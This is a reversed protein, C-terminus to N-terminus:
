LTQVRGSRSRQRVTEEQKADVTFGKTSIPPTEKGTAEEDVVKVLEYGGHPEEVKKACGECYKTDPTRHQMGLTVMMTFAKWLVQLFVLDAVIIAILLSGTSKLQPVQCFYQQSIVAPWVVSLGLHSPVSGVAEEIVLQSPVKSFFITENDFLHPDWKANSPPPVASEVFYMLLRPWAFINTAVPQGLDVLMLSYITKV